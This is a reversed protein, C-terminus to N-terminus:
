RVKVVPLEDWESTHRPSLAKRKMSWDHEIVLGAVGRRLSGSEFRDVLRRLRQRSTVPARVPAAIRSPDFIM